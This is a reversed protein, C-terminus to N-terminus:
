TAWIDDQRLAADAGGDAFIVQGTVKTNAPSTLWVLLGAIDQPQAYGGLPMPVADDVIERWTPDDLLPATMPTTVVGPAVANLPIGAGAWSETPATRRVWRALARKTSPYVFVGKDDATAAALAAAEDNRLCAEVIDDDVSQLQAVSTITVARPSDSQALFPRLGELTAIAGFYNISVTIPEGSSIGAGAIVGDVRGGTAARVGDVLAHRGESTALDATVDADHLDVGIVRHGDERLRQTTASGIGSASGTVVYIRETRESM